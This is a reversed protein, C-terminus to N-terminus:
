ARQSGPYSAACAEDRTRDAQRRGYTQTGVVFVLAVCRANREIASDVAVKYFSELKLKAATSRAVTDNSLQHTSRNFYVYDNARYNASQEMVRTEQSFNHSLNLHNYM